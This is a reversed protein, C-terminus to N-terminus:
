QDQQRGNEDERKKTVASVSEAKLKRNWSIYEALFAVAMHVIKYLQLTLVIRVAASPSDATFDSDIAVDNKRVRIIQGTLAPLTEVASCAYGYQMATAYPDRGAATYHLRFLDITFSNFFRRIAHSALKLYMMIHDFDMPLQRRLKITENNVKPKEESPKEPKKSEATKKKAEKKQRKKEERAQQKESQPKKPYLTLRFPGAAVKLWAAGDEYGADVGYPVFFILAILALLIILIIKLIM